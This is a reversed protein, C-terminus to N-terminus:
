RRRREHAALHQFDVATTHETFLHALALLGLRSGGAVAKRVKARIHILLRVILSILPFRLDYIVENNGVADVHLAVRVYSALEVDLIVHGRAIVHDTVQLDTESYELLELEALAAKRIPELIDHRRSPRAAETGKLVVHQYIDAVCVYEDGQQWRATAIELLARIRGQLELINHAGALHLSITDLELCSVVHFLVLLNQNAPARGAIDLDVILKERLDVAM